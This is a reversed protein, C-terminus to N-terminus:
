PLTNYLSGSGTEDQKDACVLQLPRDPCKNDDDEDKAISPNMESVNGKFQMLRFLLLKTPTKTDDGEHGKLPIILVTRRAAVKQAEM